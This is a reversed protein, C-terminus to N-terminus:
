HTIKCLKLNEKELLVWPTIYVRRFMREQGVGEGTGPTYIALHAARAQWSDKSHQEQSNSKYHIYMKQTKSLNHKKIFILM